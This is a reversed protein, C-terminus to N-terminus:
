PLRKLGNKTMKVNLVNWVAPCNPILHLYDGGKDYQAFIFLKEADTELIPMNDDSDHYGKQPTEYSGAMEKSYCYGANKPRWLTIYKDRKNTHTLSIVHYM